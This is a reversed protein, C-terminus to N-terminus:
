RGDRGGAVYIKDDLTQLLSTVLLQCNAEKQGPISLNQNHTLRKYTGNLIGYALGSFSYRFGQTRALILKLAQVRM